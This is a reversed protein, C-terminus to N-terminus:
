CHNRGLVHHSVMFYSAIYKLMKKPLVMKEEPKCLFLFCNMSISVSVMSHGVLVVTSPKNEANKYLRLIKKICTHVFEPFLYCAHFPM